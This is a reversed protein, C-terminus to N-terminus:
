ATLIALAKKLLLEFDPEDLVSLAQQAAKEAQPRKYGLNELTSIIDLQLSTSKGAAPAIDVDLEAKIKKLKDKLEMILREATKKGVGPIQVIRAVEGGDVAGLFDAVGMSGIIAMALKPGVGSIAVLRRFLTKEDTTFFGFLQIADERVNTHIHLSTKEGVAPLEYYTSLPIEIEYGVGAVSLILQSTNKSVIKGNLHGIM